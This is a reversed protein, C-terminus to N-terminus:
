IEVIIIWAIRLENSQTKPSDSVKGGRALEIMLSITTTIFKSVIVFPSTYTM